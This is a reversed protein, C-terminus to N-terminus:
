LEADATYAFVMFVNNTGDTTTVSGSFSNTTINLVNLAANSGGDSTSTLTVTPGTRMTVPFAVPTAIGDSGTGYTLGVIRQGTKTGYYRQCLALEEGIIRHEFVTAVVGREFQVLSLTGTNFEVELNAGGTVSDSVGSGGYTGGDIRGQATGSWWLVYDGSFLNAGEIVQVLSGATITIETVNAATSFTYTCGSAGAKWRDHGYEGASLSVTGSVARQNVSFNGNIIANRRGTLLPNLEDAVNQPTKAEFGDNAANRRLYTNATHPLNERQDVFGIWSTGGDVTFVTVVTSENANSNIVPPSGGEWVVSGPWTVTRGGTADQMLIATIPSATGNIAGSLTITCNSTLTVGWVEAVAYDLDVVGGSTASYSAM